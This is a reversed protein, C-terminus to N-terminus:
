EVNPKKNIFKELARARLVEESESRNNKPNKQEFKKLARMRLLREEDTKNVTMTPREYRKNRYWPIKNSPSAKEVKNPSHENRDPVIRNTKWQKGYNEKSLSHESTDLSGGIKHNKEHEYGKVGYSSYSEPSLSRSFSRTRKSREQYRPPKSSNLMPGDKFDRYKYSNKSKTTPQRSNNGTFTDNTHKDNFKPYNGRNTSRNNEYKPRCDNEHNETSKAIYEWLEVVFETAKDGLFGEINKALENPSIQLEEDAASKRIKCILQNMCYDIFIEDETGLIKETKYTIWKRVRSTSINSFNIKKEFIGM